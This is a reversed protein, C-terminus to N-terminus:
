DDFLTKPRSPAARDTAQQDANRKGPASKDPRSPTPKTAYIVEKLRERQDVLIQATPICLPNTYLWDLYKGFYPIESDPIDYVDPTRVEVPDGKPLKIIAHQQKLHGFTYAIDRDRLEGGYGLLKVARLRDDPDPVNFGIRIKCLNFIAKLVYPDEIQGFYQHALILRLGAKRKHALMDALKRTAYRGVEDIFLYCRGRWIRGDKRHPDTLRDLSSLVENIIATGILRTHMLDLGGGPYLNVLIVWKDAILRAFDIGKRWGFMLMLSPHFFEELRRVTSQYEAFLKQHKFAMEIMMRQRDARDTKELIQQRQEKYEVETFYVSEVMTLGANWLVALIAKLYRRIIPTDSWDKQDYLIQFTDLAKSVAADKYGSLPNIPCIVKHSYRSFPDIILVKRHRLKACVRAVKYMTDGHESADMLILGEGRRILETILHVDFRSKGYGTSGFILTHEWEELNLYLSRELNRGLLLAPYKSRLEQEQLELV